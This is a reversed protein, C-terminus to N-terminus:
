FYIKSSFQLIRPDYVSPLFGVTSPGTQRGFNASNIGATTGPVGISPNFHNIANFAEFRAEIQTRERIKFRRSISADFNFVGPSYLFDRGVNGFAGPAATPASFALPNLSLVHILYL